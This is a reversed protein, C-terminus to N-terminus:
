VYVMQIESLTTRKVQLHHGKLLLKVRKSNISTSVNISPRTYDKYRSYLCKVILLVEADLNDYSSHDRCCCNLLGVNSFAYESM